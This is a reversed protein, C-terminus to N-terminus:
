KEEPRPFVVTLFFKFNEIGYLAHPINAPMVISEGASVEYDTQDITIRAKGELVTVLADGPAKHASIGEGQPISFLTLGAGKNQALTKSSVQGEHFAIQDALNLVTAKEINKLM